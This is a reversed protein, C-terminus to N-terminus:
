LKDKLVQHCAVSHTETIKRTAPHSDICLNFREQCRKYFRCKKRDDKTPNFADSAMASFDDNANIDERVTGILTRSYPHLPQEFLEKTTAMEVLKGFYMVGLRDCLFRAVYLDHTIFLITMETEAQLDKLLNLIQARVSVDLKSVAEDAILFEPAMTLARAIASRQLQGGSLEHPFCKKFNRTLGVKSLIEDIKRDEDTKDVIRHLRLPIRLADEILYRPNMSSLPDQFVMQMKKRYPRLNAQSMGTIEMGEFKIDGSKPDVLRLIAKALTTKGSGSEGVLGFIENRKLKLSVNDVATVTRNKKSMLSEIQGRAKFSVVLDKIDILTQNVTMNTEGMSNAAFLVGM